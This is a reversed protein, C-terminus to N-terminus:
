FKSLLPRLATLAAKYNGLSVELFGLTTAPWATAFYDGGQATALADRVNSRTEDVRGAYAALVARSAHAMFRPFAGDLALAREWVDEVFLAAETLNGRWIEILANNFGLFVLDGEEGREISRRRVELMEDHARDLEGSYGLLLANLVSPRFILPVNADRD